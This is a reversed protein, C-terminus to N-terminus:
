GILTCTMRSSPTNAKSKSSEPPFCRGFPFEGVPVRFLPGAFDPQVRGLYEVVQHNQGPQWFAGSNVDKSIHGKFTRITSGTNLDWLRMSKDWSGVLAMGLCCLVRAVCEGHGHLSRCAYGPNEGEPTLEWIM